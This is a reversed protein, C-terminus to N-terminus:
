RKRILANATTLCWLFGAASFRHTSLDRVICYEDYPVKLANRIELYEDTVAEVYDYYEVEPQKQAALSGCVQSCAGDM